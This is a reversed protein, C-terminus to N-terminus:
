KLNRKTMFQDLNGRCIREQVAYNLEYSDQPFHSILERIRRDASKNHYEIVMGSVRMVTEATLWFHGIERKEEITCDAFKGTEVARSIHNRMKQALRAIGALEDIGFLMTKITQFQFRDFHTDRYELLKKEAERMDSISELKIDEDGGSEIDIVQYGPLIGAKENLPYTPIDVEWRYKVYNAVMPDSVEDGLLGRILSECGYQAWVAAGSQYDLYDRYEWLADGLTMFSGIRTFEGKEKVLKELLPLDKKFEAEKERLIHLEEIAKTVKSSHLRFKDQHEKILAAFEDSVAPLEQREPEPLENLLTQIIKRAVARRYGSVTAEYDSLEADLRAAAKEVEPKSANEGTDPDVGNAWFWTELTKHMTEVLKSLRDLMFKEIDNKYEERALLERFFEESKIVLLISDMYAAEGTATPPRKKFESGNISLAGAKIQELMGAGDMKLIDKALNKMSRKKSEGSEKAKADRLYYKLKKWYIDRKERATLNGKNESYEGM